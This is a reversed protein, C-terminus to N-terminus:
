RATAPRARSIPREDDLTSVRGSSRRASSSKHLRGSPRRAAAVPPTQGSPQSALLPRDAVSIPTPDDRDLTGPTSIPSMSFDSRSRVGIDRQVSSSSPHRNAAMAAAAASTAGGIGVAGVGAAGGQWSASPPRNGMSHRQAATPVSQTSQVRPTQGMPPSAVPHKNRLSAAAETAVIMSSRYAPDKEHRRRRRKKLWCGLVVALAAAIVLIIIMIIWGYHTSIRTIINTM